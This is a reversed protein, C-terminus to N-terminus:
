KGTYMCSSAKENMPPSAMMAEHQHSAVGTGLFRSPDQELLPYLAQEIRFKAALQEAHALPIRIIMLQLFFKKQKPPLFLYSVM